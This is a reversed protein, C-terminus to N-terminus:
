RTSPVAASPEGLAAPNAARRELGDLLRTIIARNFAHDAESAGPGEGTVRHYVVESEGMDPALAQPARAADICLIDLARLPRGNPGIRGIQFSVGRATLPADPLTKRISVVLQRAEVLFRQLELLLRLTRREHPENILILQRRSYVPYAFVEQVAIRATTPELGLAILVVFPGPDNTQEQAAQLVAAPWQIDLELGPGTLAGRLESETLARLAALYVGTAAPRGPTPRRARLRKALEPLGQPHTRSYDFLRQGPTLDLSKSTERLSVYQSSVLDDADYPYLVNLRAAGFWRMLLQGLPPLTSPPDALAAPPERAFACTRQHPPRDSMRLLRYQRGDPAPRGHSRAVYLVAPAAASARCDCAFWQRAQWATDLLAQTLATDAGDLYHALLADREAGTLMRHATRSEGPRNAYILEM